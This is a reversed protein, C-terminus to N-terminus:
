LSVDLVEQIAPRMFNVTLNHSIMLGNCNKLVLHDIHGGNEAVMTRLRKKWVSITKQIEGLTIDIWCKRIQKKLQNM